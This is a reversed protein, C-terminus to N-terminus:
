GVLLTLASFPFYVLSIDYTYNIDHILKSMKYMYNGETGEHQKNPMLFPMWGTFYRVGAIGLLKRLLVEPSRAYGVIVM